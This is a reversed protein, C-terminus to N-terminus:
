YMVGSGSDTCTSVNRLTSVPMPTAAAHPNRTNMGSSASPKAPRDPTIGSFSLKAISAM